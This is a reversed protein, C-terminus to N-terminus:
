PPFVPEVIILASPSSNSTILSPSPSIEKNKYNYIINISTLIAYYPRHLINIIIKKIIDNGKGM